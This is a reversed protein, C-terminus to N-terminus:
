KKNDLALRLYEKAKSTDNDNLYISALRCYIDQKDINLKKNEITTLLQHCLAKIKHSRNDNNYLDIMIYYSKVLYEIDNCEEALIIGEEVLRIAEEFDGRATYVQAKDIMNGHVPFKGNAGIIKAAEDFYSISKDYEKIRFYINGLNNYTYGLLSENRQCDPILSCLIEIAEDTQGKESLSGAKILNASVYSDLNKAKDCISLLENSYEIAKDQKGLKSYVLSVNYLSYERVNVDNYMTAYHYAKSFYELAEMYDAEELKCAGLKNFISAQKDLNRINKCVDLGRLYNIFAESFINDKFYMDGKEIYIDLEIHELSYNRAIEIIEDFEEYNLVGELEQKCYDEAQERPSSLLYAEDINLKVGLERAKENFKIVLTKATKKSARRDGNEIMSIFNRKLNVDELELQTMGLQKRISKVKEGPNLFIM